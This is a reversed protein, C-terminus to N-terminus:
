DYEDVTLYQPSNAFTLGEFLEEYLRPVLYYDEKFNDPFWVGNAASPRTLFACITGTIDRAVWYHRKIESIIM